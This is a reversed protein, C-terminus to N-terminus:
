IIFVVQAYYSGESPCVIHVRFGHSRLPSTSPARVPTPPYGSITEVAVGEEITEETRESLWGCPLVDGAMQPALGSRAPTRALLWLFM